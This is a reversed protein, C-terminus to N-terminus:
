DAKAGSNRVVEGWRQEETQMFDAAAARSGPRALAGSSALTKKVDESQLAKNVAANIRDLLPQPMGSPAVIGIWASITLDPFGLEAATPVDPLSPLRNRSTVMLPRVKKAEILPKAVTMTDLFVDVQGGMVDTVAPAAGRYPVHLMLIKALDAFWHMGLHGITGTGGSAYTLKAPEARARAVLGPVDNIQSNAGTELVFPIDALVAVPTLDAQKYPMKGYLAPNVTFSNGVVGLTYGDPPAKAVADTGINGGAGAKNEVVVPQGLARGLETAVIRAIVDTPGAAPFPVVFRIPKTPYEQAHAVGAVAFGVICLAISSLFKTLPTEAKTSTVTRLSVATM